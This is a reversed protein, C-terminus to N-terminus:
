KLVANNIPHNLLAYTYNWGINKAFNVYETQTVKAQFPRIPDM